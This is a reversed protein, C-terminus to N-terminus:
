QQTCILHTEDIYEYSNISRVVFEGIANKSKDYLMVRETTPQLKVRIKFSRQKFDSNESTKATLQTTEEYGCPILVSWQDDQVLPNGDEDFMEETPNTKFQIFGNAWIM